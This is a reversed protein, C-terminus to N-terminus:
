WRSCEGYISVLVSSTLSKSFTFKKTGHSACLDEDTVKQLLYWWIVHHYWWPRSSPITEEVAAFDGVDGNEMLVLSQRVEM